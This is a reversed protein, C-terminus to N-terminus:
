GADPQKRRSLMPYLILIGMGICVSSDAVNFTPWRPFVGPIGADIFDTVRHMALRDTLNGAAGALILMIGIRSAHDGRELKRFYYGLLTIAVASFLAYFLTPNLFPLINQPRIGFAAGSNYVLRFQLWEGLVHFAKGYDPFGDSLSFTKRAWYKTAQDLAFVGALLGM